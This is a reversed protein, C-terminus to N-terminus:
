LVNFLLQYATNTCRITKTQSQAGPWSVWPLHLLHKGLEQQQRLLAQCCRSAPRLTPATRLHTHHLGQQQCLHERGSCPQETNRTLLLQAQALGPLLRPGLM